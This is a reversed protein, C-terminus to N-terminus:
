LKIGEYDEHLVVFDDAYRNTQNDQPPVNQPLEMLEMDHLAINGASTISRPTGETTLVARKM